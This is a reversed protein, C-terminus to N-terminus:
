FTKLNSFLISFTDVEIGKTCVCYKNGKNQHGLKVFVTRLQQHKATSSKVQIINIQAENLM